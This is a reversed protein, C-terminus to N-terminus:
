AATAESGLAASVNEAETEEDPVTGAAHRGSNNGRSSL